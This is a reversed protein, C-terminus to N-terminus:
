LRMPFRMKTHHSRAPSFANGGLCVVPRERGTASKRKM